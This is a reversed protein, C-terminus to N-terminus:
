KISLASLPLQVVSNHNFVAVQKDVRLALAFLTRMYYPGPLMELFPWRHSDLESHTYRHTTRVQAMTELSIRLIVGLKAESLM